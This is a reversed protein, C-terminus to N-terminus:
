ILALPFMINILTIKSTQPNATKLPLGKIPTANIAMASNM